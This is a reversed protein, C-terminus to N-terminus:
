IREREEASVKQKALARGPIMTWSINMARVSSIGWHIFLGLGADPFWQADPHRTHPYDSKKPTEVGIDSHEAKVTEADSEAGTKPKASAAKTTKPPKETKPAPQQANSEPAAFFLAFMIAIAQLCAATKILRM